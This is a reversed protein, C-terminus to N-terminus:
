HPSLAALLRTPGQPFFFIRCEGWPWHWWWWWSEKPGCPHPHPAYVQSPFVWPVRSSCSCAQDSSGLDSHWPGPLCMTHWFAAGGGEGGGQFSYCCAVWAGVWSPVVLPSSGPLILLPHILLLSAPCLCPALSFGLGSGGRRSGM